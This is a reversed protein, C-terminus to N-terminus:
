SAGDRGISPNLENEITEHDLHQVLQTNDYSGRSLYKYILPVIREIDM